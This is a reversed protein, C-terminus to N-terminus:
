SISPSTPNLRPPALPPALLRSSLPTVNDPANQYQPSVFAWISALGM